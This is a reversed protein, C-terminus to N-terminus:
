NDGYIDKINELFIDNNEDCQDKCPINKVRGVENEDEKSQCLNFRIM